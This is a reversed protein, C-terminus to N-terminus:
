SGEGQEPCVEGHAGTEQCSTIMSSVMEYTTEESGGNYVKFIFGRSPEGQSVPGFVLDGASSRTPFLLLALLITLVKAFRSLFGGNGTM